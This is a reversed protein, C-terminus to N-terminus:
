HVNLFDFVGELLATQTTGRLPVGHHRAQHIMASVWRSSLDKFTDITQVWATGPSSGIIIQPIQHLETKHPFHCDFPASRPEIGPIDPVVM